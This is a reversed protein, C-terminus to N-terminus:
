GIPQCGAGSASPRIDDPNNRVGYDQTRIYKRSSSQPSRLYTFFYIHSFILTKGNFQSDQRDKELRLLHRECTFVLLLKTPCVLASEGDLMSTTRGYIQIVSVFVMTSFHSRYEMRECQVAITLSTKHLKHHYIDDM